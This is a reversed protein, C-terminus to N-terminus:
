RFSGGSPAPAAGSEACTVARNPKFAKGYRHTDSSIMTIAKANATLKRLARDLDSTAGVDDEFIAFPALFSFDSFSSKIENSGLSDLVHSRVNKLVLKCTIDGRRFAEGFAKLFPILNPGDEVNDAECYTVHHEKAAAFQALTYQQWLPGEKFSRYPNLRDWSAWKIKCKAQEGNDVEGTKGCKGETYLFTELGNQLAKSQGKQWEDTFFKNGKLTSEDGATASGGWIISSGRGPVPVQSNANFSLAKLTCSQATGDALAFNCFNSICVAITLVKFFM